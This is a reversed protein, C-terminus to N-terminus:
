SCSLRRLFRLNIRLSWIVRSSLSSIGSRFAHLLEELLQSSRFDHSLHERQQHRRQEGRCERVVDLIPQPRERRAVVQRAPRFPQHDGAHDQRRRQEAHHQDEAQAHQEGGEVQGVASMSMAMSRVVTSTSTRKASCTNLTESPGFLQIRAQSSLSVNTSQAIMEKWTRPQNAPTSRVSSPMSRRGPLAVKVSQANSLLMTTMTPKRTAVLRIARVMSRRTMFSSPRAIEVRMPMVLNEVNKRTPRPTNSPMLAEPTSRVTSPRNVPAMPRPNPNPRCAMALLKTDPKTSSSSLDMLGPSTMLKVPVVPVLLSFKPQTCSSRPRYM